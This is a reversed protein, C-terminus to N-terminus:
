RRRPDELYEKLAVANNFREERAAFVLTVVGAEARDILQKVQEPHGDLESFYRRKFEDWKEADHAFWRRLDSSPAMERLWIDIRAEEKKVGRPWLRDVLVRYGDAEEPADYARKLRIPM